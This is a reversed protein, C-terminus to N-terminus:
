RIGVYLRREVWAFAPSIWVYSAILEGSLAGFAEMGAALAEDVHERDEGLMEAQIKIEEARLPRIEFPVAKGSVHRWTELDVWVCRIARYHFLQSFLRYAVLGPIARIGLYRARSIGRLLFSESAAESSSKENM